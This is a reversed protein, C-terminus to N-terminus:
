PFLKVLWLADTRSMDTFQVGHFWRNGDESPICYRVEGSTNIEHAGDLIPFMMGIRTGMSLARCLVLRVGSRSINTIRAELLSDGMSVHSIMSVVYRKESRRDLVTPPSALPCVLIPLHIQALQAQVRYLMEKAKIFLFVTAGSRLLGWGETEDTDLLITFQKPDAAVLQGELRTNQNPLHVEVRTM